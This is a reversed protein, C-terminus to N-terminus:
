PEHRHSDGFQKHSAMTFPSTKGGIGSLTAAEPTDVIYAALLTFCYQCFGSPDSMMIGWRAALKLPKLIFNLCEHLLRNGLISHLDKDSTIFNPVLLLALLLFAHHSGKAHYEAKINALSILLLHAM